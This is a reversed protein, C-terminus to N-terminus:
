VSESGEADIRNMGYASSEDSLYSLDQFESEWEMSLNWKCTLTPVTISDQLVKM